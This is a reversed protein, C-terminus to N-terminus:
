RPGRRIMEEVSKSAKTWKTQKEVGQPYLAWEPRLAKLIGGLGEEGLCKCAKNIKMIWM